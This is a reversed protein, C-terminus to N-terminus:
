AIPPNAGAPYAKVVAALVLALAESELRLSQAEADGIHSDRREQAAIQGPMRELKEMLHTISWFLTLGDRQAAQALQTLQEPKM